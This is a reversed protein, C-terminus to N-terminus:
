MRMASTLILRHECCDSGSEYTTFTGVGRVQLLREAFMMAGIAACTESYCGGEDSGQPLFYNLGFGQWQKIAGIGGTCYMKCQVMNDWLRFIASRFKNYISESDVQVLDAAATLLYVARVAHGEITEQEALRKHAQHYRSSYVYILIAHLVSVLSKEAGSLVCSAQKSRRNTERSRCRLLPPWAMGKPNGRETLFFRALELHKRDRTHDYLRLLM